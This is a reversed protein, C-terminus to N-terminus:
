SVIESAIEDGAVIIGGGVALSVLFWLALMEHRLGFETWGVSIMLAFAGLGLALGILYVGLAACYMAIFQIIDRM